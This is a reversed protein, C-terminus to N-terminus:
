KKRLLEAIQPKTYRHEPNVSSDDGRHQYEGADFALYVADFYEPILWDHSAVRSMLFGWLRNMATDADLFSWQGANYGKAIHEAVADLLTPGSMGTSVRLEDFAADIAGPVM